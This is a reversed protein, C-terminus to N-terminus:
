TLVNEVSERAVKIIVGNHSFRISKDTKGVSSVLFEDSEM